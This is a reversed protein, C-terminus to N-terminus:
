SESEAARDRQAVEIGKRVTDWGSKGKPLLKHFPAYQKRDMDTLRNWRDRVRPYVKQQDLGIEEAWRLWLQNREYSPRRKPELHSAEQSSTPAVNSEPQTPAQQGFPVADIGKLRKGLWRMALLLDRVKKLNEEPFTKWMEIQLDVSCIRDIHSRLDKLCTYGRSAPGLSVAVTPEGPDGARRAVPLHLTGGDGIPQDVIPELEAQKREIWTLLEAPTTPAPVIPGVRGTNRERVKAPEKGVLAIAQLKVKVSEWIEVVKAAGGGGGRARHVVRLVGEPDHGNAKLCDALKQGTSALKVGWDLYEGHLQMMEDLDAQSPKTVLTGGQWPEETPKILSAWTCYLNWNTLYQGGEHLFQSILEPLTQGRTTDTGVAPEGTTPAPARAQETVPKDPLTRDFDTESRQMATAEIETSLKASWERVSEARDKLSKEDFPEDILPMIAQLIPAFSRESADPPLAKSAACVKSLLGRLEERTKQARDYVMRFRGPQKRAVRVQDATVPQGWEKTLCHAMGDDAFRPHNKFADRIEQDRLHEVADSLDVSYGRFTIALNQVRHLFDDPM